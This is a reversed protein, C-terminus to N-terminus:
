EEPPTPKALEALSAWTSVHPIYKGARVDSAYAKSCNAAKAIDALKVDRLKPLLERRFYSPDYAVGPNAKEWERLAHKRAAIAAGRRGRVETTQRPDASICANCRVHRHNSALGGCDPCTWRPAGERQSPQQRPATSTAAGSVAAKRAKVVAQASRHHRTTLPTRAVYKGAMARGLTHAVHEAIPALARAWRPM